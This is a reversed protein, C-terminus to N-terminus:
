AAHCAGSRPVELALGPEVEEAEKGEESDSEEDGKEADMAAVLELDIRAEIRAPTIVICNTAAVVSLIVGNGLRM